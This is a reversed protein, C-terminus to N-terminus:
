ELRPTMPTDFSLGVPDVAVAKGAIAGHPGDHSVTISGSAGQAGAPTPLVITARPALTVTVVDLPAGAASWYSARAAVPADTTNQLVVLTRQSGAENFRPIRGTTERVRIRYTDDPGCDSACGASRVRVYDLVAAATDNAVRLSRAHGTGVPVSDELVTTLDPAIHQLIPGQDGVDGSAGDVVVEYSAGPERLLLYLDSGAPGPAAALDAVRDAGHSLESLPITGGDDDRIVCQAVPDGLVAQSPNSLAVFFREDPEDALDGIITLPATLSTTGPPLTLSGAAPVYDVGAIATGDATAFSMTIPLSSAGTATVTVLATTNGPGGETQAVDAVALSPTPDDDVIRAEGRPASVYAGAANALDM